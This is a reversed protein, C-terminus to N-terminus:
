DVEVPEPIDGIDITIVDYAEMSVGFIYIVWLLFLLTASVPRSIGYGGLEGQLFYRRLGLIIFCIVSCSLFLIVSFSMSGPPVQYDMDHKVKWYISAFLWPLGLGLFVNVSNSGTVNGIASDASDSTRAATRSAFTDPLSTGLAVITVGTVAPKLNIVCGLVTAVEGVITTVIGILALSIGFAPWGGGKSRPPVIAGVIKWFMAIM